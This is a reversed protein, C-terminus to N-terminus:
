TTRFLLLHPMLQQVLQLETDDYRGARESRVFSMKVDRAGQKVISSGVAYFLDNGRLFDSYFETNKLREDPYLASSVTISGEALQSANPIWVNRGAYYNTFNALTVSDLGTVASVNGGDNSLSDSGNSFDHMWLMGVNANLSSALSEMFAPWRASDLAAEYISRILHDLKVHNSM